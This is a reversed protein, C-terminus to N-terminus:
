FMRYSASPYGSHMREIAGIVASPNYAQWVTMFDEFPTYVALCKERPWYAAPEPCEDLHITPIM